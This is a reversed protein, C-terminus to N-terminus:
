SYTTVASGVPLTVSMTKTQIGGNTYFTYSITVQRNPAGTLLDTTTISSPLRGFMSEIYTYSVKSVAKGDAGWITTTLPNRGKGDDPTYEYTITKQSATGSAM